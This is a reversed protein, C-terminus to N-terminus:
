VLSSLKLKEAEALFSFNSDCFIKVRGFIESTIGLFHIQLKGNAKIVFEKLFLRLLTNSLIPKSCNV